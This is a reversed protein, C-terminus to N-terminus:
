DGAGARQSGFVAQLVTNDVKPKQIYVAVRGLWGLEICRDKAKPREDEDTKRVRKWGNILM